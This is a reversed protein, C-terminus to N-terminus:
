YYLCNNFASRAAHDGMDYYEKLKRFDMNAEDLIPDDKCATDSIIERLAWTSAESEACGFGGCARCKRGNINMPIHGFFCGAQYHKGRIPQGNMIAATGIGTGLILLVMNESGRACGFTNEGVAAAVADNELIIPLGFKERSWAQFDFAMADAYKASHAIVCKRHPDVM